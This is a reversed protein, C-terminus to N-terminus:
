RWLTNPTAGPPRACGPGGAPAAPPLPVRAAETDAYRDRGNGGHTHPEHLALRHDLFRESTAYHNFGLLMPALDGARFDELEAETVGAQLLRGRFPHARDVRGTLLDLSLWRRANEYAAQHRLPATAFTKGLDETQVLRAGPVERRVARMALLVGRCQVAVARLFGPEDARHPAWHGYLASFRATTLPENVPTWDTAWPYRRAVRGAFEALREPFFPDLLCTRRPGSGHHVLGLIPAVGLRRLEAMRADPWSWDCEEPHDPAVREWSVPYRLTRIGLAAVAELDSLRDHHGTERFQDRFGDGVQVM